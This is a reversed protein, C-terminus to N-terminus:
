GSHWWPLGIVMNGELVSKLISEEEAKWVGKDGDAEVVDQKRNSGTEKDWGWGKFTTGM